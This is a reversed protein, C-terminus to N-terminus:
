EYNLFLREFRDYTGDWMHLVFGTDIAVCSLSQLRQLVLPAGIGAGVFAIDPKSDINLDFDGQAVGSSPIEHFSVKAAGVDEFVRSINQLNKNHFNTIIAVHRNRLAGLFRPNVLLAYVFYFPAYNQLPMGNKALFELFDSQLQVYIMNLNPCLVGDRSITQLADLHLRRVGAADIRSKREGWCTTTEKGSYFSYEGDCFRAIPFYARSELCRLVHELFGNFLAQPEVGSPFILTCERKRGEAVKAFRRFHPENNYHELELFRFEVSM